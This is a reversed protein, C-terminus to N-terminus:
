TAKQPWSAIGKVNKENKCLWHGLVLDGLYDALMASNCQCFFKSTNRGSKRSLKNRSEHSPGLNMYLQITYCKLQIQSEMIHKTRGSSLCLKPHSSHDMWIISMIESTLFNQSGSLIECAPGMAETPNHRNRAGEPPISRRASKSSRLASCPLASCPLAPCLM